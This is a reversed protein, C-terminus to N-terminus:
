QQTVEPVDGPPQYSTVLVFASALVTVAIAAAFCAAAAQFGTQWGGFGAFLCGFGVAALGVALLLAGMLAGPDVLTEMDPAYWLVALWSATRRIRVRWSKTGSRSSMPPDPHGATGFPSDLPNGAAWCRM